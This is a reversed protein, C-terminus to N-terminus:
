AGVGTLGSGVLGSQGSQFDFDVLYLFVSSLGRARVTSRLDKRGILFLTFSLVTDTIWRMWDLRYSLM